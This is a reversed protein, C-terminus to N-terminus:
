PLTFTFTAGAGPQGAAWIQGGHRRVIRRVSALGVGHGPFESAGHLRQFMGFMRQARAMDFGAGNDMIAVAAQGNHEVRRMHVRAGPTHATYKWANGLLNELAMRLLTPDGLATIDPDIHVEVVREPAQRQLDEVVYHALQSLNVPQRALPHADLRSWELLAVIMQNMRAAAALVRDLHDHAVRDLLSGYDEKVIRAFGEVSRLPARLDHSLTTALAPLDAEDDGQQSILVAQRGNDLRLRVLLWEDARVETGSTMSQLATRLPLPLNPLAALLDSGPEAAPWRHQASQSHQRIVWHEPQQVALVAPMPHLNLVQRLVDAGAGVDDESPEPSAQGVFGAFRGRDDARPTGDLVWEMEGLRIRLASFPREARLQSRLGEASPTGVGFLVRGVDGQRQSREAHRHALAPARWVRLRHDRDTEWAWGRQLAVMRRLEGRVVRLDRGSRQRMVTAGLAASVLALALSLLAVVWAPAGM